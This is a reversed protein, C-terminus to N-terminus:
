GHKVELKSSERLSAALLLDRAKMTSEGLHFDLAQRFIVKATRLTSENDYEDKAIALLDRGSYFRTSDDGVKFFGQDPEFLYLGDRRILDGSNRERHFTLGYGLLRLYTKEFKRLVQAIANSDSELGDLAETYAEFVGAVSQNQRLGRRILENLYHVAYLQGGVLRFAAKPECSRIYVLGDKQRWSMAYAALLDVNIAGARKAGRYIAHVYQSEDTLLELLLSTESYSRRRLVYCTRYIM